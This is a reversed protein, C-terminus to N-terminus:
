IEKLLRGKCKRVIEPEKKESNVALEYLEGIGDKPAAACGEAASCVYQM